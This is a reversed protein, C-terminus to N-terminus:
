QSSLPYLIRVEKLVRTEFFAAVHRNDWVEPFRYNQIFFLTTWNDYPIFFMRRLLNCWHYVCKLFFKECSSSKCTQSVNRKLRLLFTQLISQDTYAKKANRSFLLGFLYQKHFSFKTKWMYIKLRIHWLMFIKQFYCNLINTTNGGIITAM